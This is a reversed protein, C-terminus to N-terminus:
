HASGRQYLDERKWGRRVTEPFAPFNKNRLQQKRRAEQLLRLREKLSLGPGPKGVRIRICDVGSEFTIESGPGINYAQAIAKPLTVQLKSTVRSM